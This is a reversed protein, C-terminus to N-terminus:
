SNRRDETYIVKANKNPVYLPTSLLIFVFFVMLLFLIWHVVMGVVPIFAIINGVVGLLPIFMMPKIANQKDVILIVMMIFYLLMSILLPQWGLSLIISGGLFPIGYVLESIILIISLVLLTTRIASKM